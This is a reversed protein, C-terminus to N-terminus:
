RVSARDLCAALHRTLLRRSVGDGKAAHAGQPQPRLEVRLGSELAARAGARMGGSGDDAIRRLGGQAAAAGRKRARRRAELHSQRRAFLRRGRDRLHRRARDARPHRVASRADAGLSVPRALPARYQRLEASQAPRCEVGGGLGQGLHRVHLAGPELRRPRAAATIDPTRRTARALPLAGPSTGRARRRLLARYPCAPASLPTAEGM